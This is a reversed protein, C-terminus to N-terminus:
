WPKEMLGVIQEALRCIAQQQAVAISQGVEPVVNSTGTVDAVETPVPVACPMRLMQGRRDIWTVEVKMNVQIDRADGTLDPVLVSKGEQVLRGTLTSDATPDSVVKYPTRKEIEKVVAETLREGLNRRFSVSQFIPVYVTKIETPYLTQNGIQYGACGGLTILLSLCVLALAAFRRQTREKEKAWANVGPSLACDGVGDARNRRGRRRFLASPLTTPTGPEWAYVGPSTFLSVLPM